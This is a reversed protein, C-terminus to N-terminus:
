FVCCVYVDDFYFIFFFNVDYFLSIFFGKIFDEYVVFKNQLQFVYKFFIYYFFEFYFMLRIKYQKNFIKFGFFM